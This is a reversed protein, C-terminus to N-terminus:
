RHRIQPHFPWPGSHASLRTRGDSGCATGPAGTPLARTPTAWLTLQCRLVPVASRKRRDARVGCGPGAPRHIHQAMRRQPSRISPGHGRPSGTFPSAGRGAPPLGAWGGPLAGCAPGGHARSRRSAAPGAGAPRRSNYFGHPERRAYRSPATTCHGQGGRPNTPRKCDDHHTICPAKRM